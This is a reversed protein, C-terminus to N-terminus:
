RNEEEIKYSGGGVFQFVIFYKRTPTEFYITQPDVSKGSQNLTLSRYVPFRAETPFTYTDEPKAPTSASLKFKVTNKSFEMIVTGESLIRKKYEYEYRQMVNHLMVKSEYNVRAQHAYPIALILSLSILMLVFVMELLTFAKNLQKKM